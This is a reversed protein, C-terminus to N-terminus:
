ILHIDARKTSMSKQGCPFNLCITDMQVGTFHQSQASFIFFQGASDKLTGM